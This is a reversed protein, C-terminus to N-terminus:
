TKMLKRKERRMNGELALYPYEKVSDKNLANEHLSPSFNFSLFIRKSIQSLPFSLKLFL